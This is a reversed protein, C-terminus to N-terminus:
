LLGQTIAFCECAASELGPEDVISIVGRRHQVFGANELAGIAISVTPRQAGLMIAMLEQTLPFELRGTSFRVMLLWRALREQVPHFAQCAASQTIVAIVWLAYNGLARRLRSDQIAIELQEVSMRLADGEIQIIGSTTAVAPQGFIAAIGVFGDQGVTSAEAMNGSDTTSVLSILCTTPFYVFDITVGPQMVSTSRELHVLELHEAMRAALDQPLNDLLRNFFAM